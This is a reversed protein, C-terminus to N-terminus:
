KGWGGKGVLKGKSQIYYKDGDRDTYEEHAVMSGMWTKLNADILTVGRYFRENPLTGGMPGSDIRKDEIVAIVHGEEDGVQVNEWKVTLWCGPRQDEGRRGCRGVLRCRFPVPIDDSARPGVAHALFVVLHLYPYLAYCTPSLFNL